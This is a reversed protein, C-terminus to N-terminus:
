RTITLPEVIEISKGAVDDRVTLVLQHDGVADQPLTVGLTVSFQGRANPRLAQPQFTAVPTGDARRLAYSLSVRPEAGAPRSVGLVDFAAFVRSGAAFSRHAV